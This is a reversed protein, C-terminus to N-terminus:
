CREENTHSLPRWGWLLKWVTQPVTWHWVPGVELGVQGAVQLCFTRRPFVLLATTMLCTALPAENHLSSAIDKAVWFFRQSEVFGPFLTYIETAIQGTEVGPGLHVSDDVGHPWPTPIKVKVHAQCECGWVKIKHLLRRRQWVYRLWYLCGVCVKQWPPVPGYQGVTWHSDLLGQRRLVSKREPLPSWFLRKVDLIKNLISQENWISYKM